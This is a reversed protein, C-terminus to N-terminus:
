DATRVYLVKPSDRSAISLMQPISRAILPFPGESEELAQQARRRAMGFETVLVGLAGFVILSIIHEAPIPLFADSPPIFWYLIGAATALLSVLGPGRGGYWASVVVAGVALGYMAVGPPLPLVMRVFVALAALALAIGYRALPHRRSRLLDNM